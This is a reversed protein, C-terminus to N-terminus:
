ASAKRTEFIPESRHLVTDRTIRCAAVDSLSHIEFMIDLMTEELVARLGRAGTGLQHAKDVITVIADEEFILDIGDMAFLKQTASSRDIRELADIFDAARQPYDWPTCIYVADYVNWDVSVDCWPVMDVDWSLAAMSAHSVDFDTVSDSPNEM